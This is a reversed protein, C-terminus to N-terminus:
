MIMSGNVGLIEGTVYESLDSAFFIAAKAIDEATGLRAMGINSIKEAKLEEDVSNFMDTDIMGPAIANVRINKSALEKSGSKTIAIVAGKSASYVLQGPDGKDGVISAINIISGFKQRVMLKTALQILEILAFVNTEFTNVIQDHTILGIWANEIIGANNVLVDLQGQEKKIQMMAKKIAQTNRIDFYIPCIKGTGIVKSEISDIKRANAYVIAGEEAFNEAIAKGIGKSAGTVLCVKDKLLNSNLM